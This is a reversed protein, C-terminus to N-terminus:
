ATNTDVGVALALVDDAFSGKDSPDRKPFRLLLDNMEGNWLLNGSVVGGQPAGDYVDREVTVNILKASVKRNQLMYKIWRISVKDLGQRVLNNVMGKTSASNFASNIDLFLLIAVEKNDLAKEIKNIAMHLPDETSVGEM